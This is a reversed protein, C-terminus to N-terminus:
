LQFINKHAKPKENCLRWKICLVDLTIQRAEKYAVYTYKFFIVILFLVVRHTIPM